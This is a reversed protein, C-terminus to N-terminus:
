VDYFRNLHAKMLGAWPDKPFIEPMLDTVDGYRPLLAAYKKEDIPWCGRFKITRKKSDDVFFWGNGDRLSKAQLIEEIDESHIKSLMTRSEPNRKQEPDLKNPCYRLDIMYHDATRAKEM